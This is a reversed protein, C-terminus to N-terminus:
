GYRRDAYADIKLEALSRDQADGRADRWVADVVLCDRMRAFNRRQDLLSRLCGPLPTMALATM